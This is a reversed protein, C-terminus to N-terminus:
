MIRGHRVHTHSSSVGSVVPDGFAALVVALAILLGVLM